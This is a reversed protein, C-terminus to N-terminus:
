LIDNEITKIFEYINVVNRYILLSEARNLIDNDHAYSQNNRVNNFKDFISGTQVLITKSLDSELKRNIFKTYRRFIQNLSEHNDYEINHKDCLEKVYNHMLTHLRDLTFEPKGKIISQNIDEILNDIKEETSGFKILYDTNDYKELISKASNLQMPNVEFYNGLEDPTVILVELYDILEKLLRMISTESENHLFYKLIKGKSSGGMIEEVHQSYEKDYVDIGTVDLVFQRFDSNNFDLVYGGNILLNEFIKLESNTLRTM